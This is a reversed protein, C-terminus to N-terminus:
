HTKKTILVWDSAKGIQKTSELKLKEFTKKDLLLYPQKDQEWQQKLESASAPAIKRDSYFELAPRESPFSAYITQNEPTGRNLIAAVETVPYASELEWIWYPSTMFLLLSIYTGWFLILIFQLDRRAALVAAIFMTLAISAFIVSLSRDALPIIGFGISAAIAAVALGILGISWLRPYSQRSPGNWIEALYAGAALALTPYVPLVYWPLRNVMVLIALSYVGAWVLVLKAWGWNRNEGALSFGYPWFLLWPVSFKCFQTLYYWFLSPPAKEPAWLRRPSPNILGVPIFTQHNTFLWLEYVALGPASGLLLGMWWYVSTLLRPTDWALFVFAVGLLLFGILIGKSLAILGLGMGIGFSWRLDRRSRLVCWMMLMIFCLTAGDVSALRGQCVVPLLTLYVLSSFIASQRSPFIERGIGYLMPVSLASLIAGPLRTTWENFGGIKYAGAIISHLLPPEELYPNSTLKLDLWQWAQASVKGIERATLAVAGEGWDLLPPSGLNIGFLLLAASLLGIMWLRDVWRETKRSRNGSRGWTFTQH